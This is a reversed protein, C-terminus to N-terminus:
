SQPINESATAHNLRFDLNTVSNDEFVTFTETHSEFSGGNEEGDIDELTVTLSKVVDEEAKWVPAAFEGDSNSYQTESHEGDNWILTVRIHELATGSTDSVHGIIIHKHDEHAAMHEMNMCSVALASM